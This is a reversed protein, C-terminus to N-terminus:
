VLWPKVDPSEDGVVSYWELFRVVEFSVGHRAFGSFCFLPHTLAISTFLHEVEMGLQSFMGLRALRTKDAIRHELTCCAENNARPEKWKIDRRHQIYRIVHISTPVYVDMAKVQVVFRPTFVLIVHSLAM